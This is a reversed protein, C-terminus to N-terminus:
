RVFSLLSLILASEIEINKFHFGVDDSNIIFASGLIYTIEM